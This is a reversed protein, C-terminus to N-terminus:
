KVEECDSCGPCKTGDPLVRYGSCLPTIDDPDAVKKIAELVADAGVATKYGADNLIQVIDSM